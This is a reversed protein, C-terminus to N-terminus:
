FKLQTLVRCPNGGAIVNAPISKTVVSNAGIVSNEGITVGKLITASYGIFVNDSISIPKSGSSAGHKRDTPNISHWDFDTILVNAGIMVSDGIQIFEKAGIIAASMGCNDGIMIKAQESHTSITTRRNIGIFNSFKATRIEINRGMKISSGPFKYISPIGYFKSGPGLEVKKLRLLGRCYFSTLARIIFLRIYYLYHFLYDM